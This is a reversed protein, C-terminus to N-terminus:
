QWEPLDTAGDILVVFPRGREKWYTAAHRLIELLTAWDDGLARRADGVHRLHLLYGRAGVPLDGLADALADWNHGFTPAFGLGGALTALLQAKDRVAGLDAFKSEVTALAAPKSPARYVGSQGPDLSASM